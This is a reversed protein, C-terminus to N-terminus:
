KNNKFFISIQTIDYEIRSLDRQISQLCEVSDQIAQVETERLRDYQKQRKTEHTVMFCLVVFVGIIFLIPLVYDVFIM